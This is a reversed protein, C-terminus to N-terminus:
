RAAAAAAPKPAEAAEAVAGRRVPLLPLAAVGTLAMAFSGLFGRRSTRRAVSRAALEMLRDLRAQM